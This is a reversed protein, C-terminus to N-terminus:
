KKYLWVILIATASGMTNVAADALDASRGTAIVGQLVEMVLGYVVAVSFIILRLRGRRSGKDLCLFWLLSFVFYFIFHVYKDKHPLKFGEMAEFSAASILSATTM